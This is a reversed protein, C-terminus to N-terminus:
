DIRVFVEVRRLFPLTSPPDYGAFSPEGHMTLGAKEVLELLDRQKKAIELSDYSGSFRLAAVRHPPVERLQIRSDDPVPLSAIDRGEPMIFAVVLGGAGDTVHAPPAHEAIAEGAAATATVPSTMAVREHQKNGGFIYEALRRFGENLATRWFMGEVTTCAEIRAGYSRIELSGIRKELTYKPQETVLRKLQLLALGALVTTGLITLVVKRTSARPNSTAITYAAAPALVLGPLLVLAVDPATVERAIQGSRATPSPGITSASAQESLGPSYFKSM